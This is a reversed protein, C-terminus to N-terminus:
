YTKLWKQIDKAMNSTLYGQMKKLARIRQEKNNRKPNLVNM